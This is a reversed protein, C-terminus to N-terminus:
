HICGIVEIARGPWFFHFLCSSFDSLFWLKLSSKRPLCSTILAKSLLNNGTAYVFNLKLLSESFVDGSDGVIGDVGDTTVSGGDPLDVWPFPNLINSEYCISCLNGISSAFTFAPLM